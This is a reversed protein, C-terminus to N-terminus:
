RDAPGEDDTTTEPTAADNRNQSRDIEAGLRRAGWIVVLGMAMVVLINMWIPM